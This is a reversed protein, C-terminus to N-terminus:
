SLTYGKSTAIAIQEPTLKALNTPGIYIRWTNATAIANEFLYVMSDVSLNNSYRFDIASQNLNKIRIEELAYCYRFLSSDYSSAQQQVDLIGNVTKLKQCNYFMYAVHNAVYLLGGNNFTITELETAHECISNIQVPNTTSLNVTVNEVGTYKLMSNVNVCDPLNLGTSHFQKLSICGRFLEGANTVGPLTEVMFQSMNRNYAFYTRMNAVDSTINGGIYLIQNKYNLSDNISVPNVPDIIMPGKNISTDNKYTSWTTSASNNVTHGYELITLINNIQSPYGNSTLWNEIVGEGGGGQIELIKDMQEEVTLDSAVPVGMAEINGVAKDFAAITRNINTELAEM